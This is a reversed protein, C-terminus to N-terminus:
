GGSHGTAERALRNVAELVGWGVARAKDSMRWVVRPDFRPYIEGAKQGDRVRAGDRLLGKLTGCIEARVSAKPGGADSRDSEDAPVVEAVTRGAEVWMGLEASTRFIGARPSRLVRQSTYGGVEYPTKTDEKARGRYIPRGLDPGWATEVVAHVDEGASFGPGLGVVIQADLKTTGLNRKAMRADVLVRAGIAKSLRGDPDVLVPVLGREAMREAERASDVLVAEVGEVTWRGRFVCECFAVTRLVARPEALETMFVEFGARRLKHGVGTALDGAGKVLVRTSEVV